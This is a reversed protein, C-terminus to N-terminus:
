FSDVLSLELVKWKLKAQHTFLRTRRLLKAECSASSDYHVVKIKADVLHM